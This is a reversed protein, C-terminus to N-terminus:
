RSTTSPCHRCSVSAPTQQTTSQIGLHRCAGAGVRRSNRCPTRPTSSRAGPWPVREKHHTCTLSSKSTPLLEPKELCLLYAPAALPFIGRQNSAKPSPRSVRSHSFSGNPGKSIALKLALSWPHHMRTKPHLLM